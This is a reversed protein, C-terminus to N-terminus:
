LRIICLLEQICYIAGSVALVVVGILFQLMSKALIMHEPNEPDFSMDDGFGLSLLAGAL